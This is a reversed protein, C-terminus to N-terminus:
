TARRRSGPERGSGSPGAFAQAIRLWETAVPGESRLTTDAPHCRQTVVLALEYADGRVVNDAAANGINWVEGSPATVELRVPRDPIPRGHTAFTNPIAQLGLFVVHRVRDSRSHEGGLAEFIDYGHAWTEMFRATLKSAVSMEPGYWPMRMKADLGATADLLGGRAKRFWSLLDSGAMDHHDVIVKDVMQQIGGLTAPKAAVFGEPDSLARITADDNWALHSVQDKVTWPVSATPTNWGFEDLGDLVSVVAESEATLDARLDDLLNGMGIVTGNTFM